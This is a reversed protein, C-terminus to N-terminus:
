RTHDPLGSASAGAERVVRAATQRPASRRKRGGNMTDAEALIEARSCGLAASVRGLSYLSLGARGSLVKSVQSDDIEAAAALDAPKKGAAVMRRTIVAGIRKREAAEETKHRGM